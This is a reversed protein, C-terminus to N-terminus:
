WVGGLFDVLLVFVDLEEVVEEVFEFAWRVADEWLNSHQEGVLVAFDGVLVVDGEFEVWDGDSLALGTVGSMDLLDSFLGFWENAGFACFEVKLKLVNKHHFM